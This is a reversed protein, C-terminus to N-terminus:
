DWGPLFGATMYVCVIHWAGKYMCPNRVPFLGQLHGPDTPGVSWHACFKRSESVAHFVPYIERTRPRDQYWVLHVGEPTGRSCSVILPRPVSRGPQSSLKLGSSKRNQTESLSSKDLTNVSVFGLLSHTHPSGAEWLVQACQLLYAAVVCRYVANALLLFPPVPSPERGASCVRETQIEPQM